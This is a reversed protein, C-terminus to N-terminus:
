FDLQWQHEERNTELYRVLKYRLESLAELEMDIQDILEVTEQEDQTTM